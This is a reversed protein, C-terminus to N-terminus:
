PYPTTVQNNPVMPTRNVVTPNTGSKSVDIDYNLNGTSATNSITQDARYSLQATGFTNGSSTEFDVNTCTTGTFGSCDQSIFQNTYATLRSTGLTSVDNEMTATNSCSSGSFDSCDQIIYQDTYANLQSTTGGASVDNDMTASNTCTQASNCESNQIVTQDSESNLTPTATTALNSDRANAFYDITATNVCVRDCEANQDLTQKYDTNVLGTVPTAESGIQVLLGGFNTCDASSCDLTQESQQVGYDTNVIGRQDTNVELGVSVANYCFDASSSSTTSDAPDDCNTKQYIDQIIGGMDVQSNREANIGVETVADNRCLQDGQSGDFGADCNTIQTTTSLDSGDGSRENDFKVVANNTATGSPALANDTDILLSQVSLNICELDVTAAKEDKVDCGDTTQSVAFGQDSALDVRSAGNSVISYEQLADNVNFSDDPQDHFQDMVFQVDEGDGNALLKATQTLTAKFNQDGQNFAQYNTQASGDIKQDMDMDVEFNAYSNGLSRVDVDHFADNRVDTRCNVSGGDCRILQNLNIDIDARERQGNYTNWASNEWRFNTGAICNVGNICDDFSDQSIDRDYDCFSNYPKDHIQNFAPGTDCATYIVANANNLPFTSITALTFISFFGAIFSM